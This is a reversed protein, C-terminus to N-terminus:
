LDIVKEIPKLEGWNEGINCEVELDVTMFPFKWGIMIDRIEHFAEKIKSYPIYFTLDDHVDIPIRYGRESAVILSLTTFDAMLSQIPYNIIQNYSLPARRRRGFFTTVYGYRKYEEVINIHYQRLGNYEEFFRRHVEKIFHKPMGISESISSFSAGYCSPFFFKNKAIFRQEYREGEKWNTEEDFPIGFLIKAWKGHINVKEKIERSLQKDGSGMAIGCIEAGEFDFGMIVHDKPPTFGTRIEKHKHKDVNQMNPSNSSLRGSEKGHLNYDCHLKGDDYAFNRLGKIYTSHAKSYDRFTLLLSSFKDGKDALAQLVTADVSINGKETENAVGAGYNDIVFKSIDKSSKFNFKGYKEKFEQVKPLSYLDKIAKKIKDKYEDGIKELKDWDVIVGEIESRATAITGPLLINKYVNLLSPYHKLEETYIEWLRYTLKCDVGCYKHALEPPCEDMCNKYKEIEQIKTLGLRVFSQFDLSHIGRTEKLSYSMLMTCDIYNLDTEGIDAKVKGWTLEFKFNHAIKKTKIDYLEKLCPLTEETINFTYSQKGNFAVGCILIRSNDYFPKVGKKSNDKNGGVTEIDFVYPNGERASILIRQEIEKVSTLIENNEDYRNLDYESFPKYNLLKQIDEKLCIMNADKDRLVFSPHFTPLLITQYKQFPITWGRYKTISNEGTLAELPVAGCLLIIKPQVALIEKELRNYCSRIQNSTPTNNNLPRCHCTNTIFCREPNIGYLRLTDRLLSGSEGIFPIGKKDELAGPAEGIIMIEAPIPGAGDM